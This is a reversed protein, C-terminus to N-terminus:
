DLFIFDNSMLLVQVYREWNSLTREDKPDTSATNALLFRLGQHIEDPTPDRQYLHQYLCAIRKTEDDMRQFSPQSVMQSAQGMVFSGNLFFLAQLPVTTNDRQATTLDPNAFDFIRFVPLLDNRDVIGYVSRRTAYSQQNGSGRKFLDVPRGGFTRDLNGAVFLLTDRMSEFDLRRRNMKALLRNDPDAKQYRLNDDSAQQYVSSLMFLRHMKKISWGDQVFRWALYDLLEPHSPPESRLGFDDPTTVLGAGFHHLWLRNVSV